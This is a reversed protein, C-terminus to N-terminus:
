GRAESDNIAVAEEVDAARMPACFALAASFARQGPFMPSRKQRASPNRAGRQGAGPAPVAAKEVSGAPEESCVAAAREDPTMRAVIEKVRETGRVQEDAIKAIEAIMGDVNDARDAITRVADAVDEASKVAMDIDKASEAIMDATNQATCACRMAFSRVEDAVCSFAKGNENTRAAAIAANFALFNARLAMYNVAKIIKANNESSAKILRVAEALRKAAATGESVAANSEAALMKAWNANGANRLASASVTALNRSARSLPEAISDAVFLGIVAEMTFFAAAIATVAAASKAGAVAIEAATLATFVVGVAVSLFIKSRISM